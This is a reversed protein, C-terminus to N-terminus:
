ILYKIIKKYTMKKIFFTEFIILKFIYNFSPLFIEILDSIANSGRTIIHVISNTSIYIFNISIFNIELILFKYYFILNSFLSLDLYNFNTIVRVLFQIDSKVIVSFWGGDSLWSLVKRFTMILFGNIDHQLLNVM